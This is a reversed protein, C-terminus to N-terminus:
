KGMFFDGNVGLQKIQGLQGVIPLLDRGEKVWKLTGKNVGKVYTLKESQGTLMYYPVGTVAKIFEAVEGFARLGAVPSKTQKYWQIPSTFFSLEGSSRDAQQKLFNIAMRTYEDDPPTGKAAADFIIYLALATAFMVAEVANKKMNAQELTSLKNWADKTFQISMGEMNQIMTAIARYRGEMELGLSEDYYGRSFRNRIGNPMWRKFQFALEGYWNEQIPVKDVSSHNGHINKNMNRIAESTAYKEKNSFKVGPRLKLEKTAEDFVYADLLSIKKDETKVKNGELNVYEFDETIDITKNDLYALATRVQAQYEGGETLAYMINGSKVYQKFTQKTKIGAARDDNEELFNFHEILASMLDSPKSEEYQDPQKFMNSVFKGTALTKSFFISARVYNKNKYFRGGWGEQMNSMEATVINNFAPFIAFGGVSKLSIYKKLLMGLKAIRSNNVQSNNYFVQRMWYNLREEVNSSGKKTVPNGNGDTKTEGNEVEYFAKNKIVEQAIHFTSEVSKKIDYAIAMNMGAILSEIPDYSLEEATLKNKEILLSNKLKEIKNKNTLDKVKELEKIQSELEVIRDENRLDGMFYIGPENIPMNSEDLQIGSTVIQPLLLGKIKGLITKIVPTKQKLVETFFENRIRLVKNQMKRAVDAPMKDLIEQFTKAYFDYFEKMAPNAQIAKYEESNWKEQPIVFDTKVFRTKFELVEGTAQKNSDYQMRWVSTPKTYYRKLYRAYEEETIGTKKVWGGKTYIEHISRDKKFYDVYKNNGGEELQRTEKNWTEAQIFVRLAKKDAALKINHEKEEKSMDALPKTIYERRQKKNNADLETDNLKEYLAQLTKNFGASVRQVVKGNFKGDSDKEFISTMDIGAKLAKRGAERISNAATKKFDNSEQMKEAYVKAIVALLSDTSSNIDIFMKQLGDIDNSARLFEEIRDRTIEGEENNFKANTTNNQILDVITDMFKSEVSEKVERYLENVKAIKLSLGSHKQAFETTNLGAYTDLQKWLALITDRHSEKAPDFGKGKETSNLWESSRELNSKVYNLIDLFQGREDQEELRILLNDLNEVEEERRTKDGDKLNNASKKLDRVRKELAKITSEVVGKLRAIDKDSKLEFQGVTAEILQEDRDFLPTDPSIVIGSKEMEYLQKAADTNGDVNEWELIEAYRARDEKNKLTFSAAGHLCFSM